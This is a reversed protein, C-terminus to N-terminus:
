GLLISFRARADFNKLPDHKRKRKKEEQKQIPRPIKNLVQVKGITM